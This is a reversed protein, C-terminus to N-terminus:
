AHFTGAACINESHDNLSCIACFSSGFTKSSTSCRSRSSVPSQNIEPQKNESARKKARQYKNENYSAACNHHYKGNNRKFSVLFDPEGNEDLVDTLSNVDLDLQGIRWFKLLNKALSEHGKASCRLAQGTNNQCVLCLSWTFNPRSSM